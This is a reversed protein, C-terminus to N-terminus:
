RPSIAGRVEGQQFDRAPYVGLGDPLIISEAVFVDAPLCRSAPALPAPASDLFREEVALKPEMNVEDGDVAGSPCALMMRSARPGRLFHKSLLDLLLSSREPPVPLRLAAAELKGSADSVQRRLCRAEQADKIKGAAVAKM